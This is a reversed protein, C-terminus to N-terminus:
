NVGREPTKDTSNTNLVVTTIRSIVGYLAIRAADNRKNRGLSAFTGYVTHQDARVSLRALEIYALLDAKSKARMESHYVLGCTQIVYECLYECMKEFESVIKADPVKEFASLMISIRDLIASAKTESILLNAYHSM